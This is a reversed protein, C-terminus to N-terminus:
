KIWGPPRKELFAKLGEQGEPSVRRAAIATATVSMAEDLPAAWVRAILEKAGAIAGPAAALIEQVYQSVTSDLQTAPVVAHVLGIDHARAASFRNGTLFLERAASRGIKALVFPSIVAPLIGLRVETFGFVAHEDAVVIDCVACLGAGGGIASGHVRGILPVPLADLAAFMRSAARADNLNEAETYAVTKAMWAVDAGACFAKGAGSLVVARLGDAAADHSVRGTWDALEAIVQENFANRADPRNLTLYEVAGDRTTTLFEYSM